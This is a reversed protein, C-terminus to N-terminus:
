KKVVASPGPKPRGGRVARREAAQQTAQLRRQAKAILEERSLPHSDDDSDDAEEGTGPLRKPDVLVQMADFPVQPGRVVGDGGAGTQRSWALLLDDTRREVAALYQVVNDMTLGAIGHKEIIATEDCDLRAFVQEVMAMVRRITGETKGSMDAFSKSQVECNQLKCELDRLQSRREQDAANGLTVSDIERLLTARQGELSEIEKGLDNVYSFLSFNDEEASIFRRVIEDLDPIDTAQRIKAAIEEYQQALTATDTTGDASAASGGQTTILVGSGSASGKSGTPLGRRRKASAAREGDDDHLSKEKKELQSLRLKVQEKMKRDEELLEDLERFTESFSQMEDQAFARLNALVQANNDREEYAINSVEIVFAMEKKKEQLEGELQRYIADFVEREGRLTDIQDRLEKNARLVENFQVLSHDLRNELVALQRNVADHSEETVKM